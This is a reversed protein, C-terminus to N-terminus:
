LNEKMWTLYNQSCKVPLLLFEPLEYPHHLAFYKKVAAVKARSTKIVLAIELSRSIKNKWRYISASATCQVCAALRHQVLAKALQQAQRQTAVTTLLLVPKFLAKSRAM